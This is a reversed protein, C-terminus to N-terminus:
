FFNNKIFVPRKYAPKKKFIRIGGYGKINLLKLKHINNDSIGGLAFFNLNNKFSLYNFKHIGLFRKSKKIYFLPSLFIASCRQLNKKQIEKQNHASGIIKLNMKELNAFRETKNFSPIYIGEAKVKIALKIDNSVFLQKRSKKCAKAIKTLEKERNKANYNRYIIGININSNKLIQSDYEDIFAFINPLFKHM